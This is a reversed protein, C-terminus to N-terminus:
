PLDSVDLHSARTVYRKWSELQYWKKWKEELVKGEDSPYLVIDSYAARGFKGRYRMM